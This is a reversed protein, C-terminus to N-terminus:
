HNNKEDIESYKRALDKLTQILEPTPKEECTEIFLIKGSWEEKTPFLGYKECVDKLSAVNRSALGM